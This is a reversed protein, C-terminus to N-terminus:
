PPPNENNAMPRFHIFTIQQYLYPKYLYFPLYAISIRVWKNSKNQLVTDQKSCDYHTSAQTACM